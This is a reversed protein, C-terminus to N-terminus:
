KKGKALCTGQLLVGDHPLVISEMLYGRAAECAVVSNFEVNTVAQVTM